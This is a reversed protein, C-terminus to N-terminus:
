RAAAITVSASVPLTVPPLCSTDNCAQARITGSVTVKGPKATKAVLVPVALKVSGSYVSIKGPGNPSSISTTTKPFAPAGLTVGTKAAPKASLFATAIAYEDEPKNTYIHYGPAVSVMVLMTAKGGPKIATAAISAEARVVSEGQAAAAASVARSSTALAAPVIGAALALLALRKKETNKM